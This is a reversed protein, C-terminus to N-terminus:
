YKEFRLWTTCLPGAVKAAMTTRSLTNSFALDSLVQNTISSLTAVASSTAWESEWSGKTTSAASCGSAWKSALSTVTLLLRREEELAPRRQARWCCRSTRLSLLVPAPTNFARWLARQSPMKLNDSTMLYLSTKNERCWNETCHNLKFRCIGWGLHINTWIFLACWIFHRLM